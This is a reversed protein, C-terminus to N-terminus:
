KRKKRSGARPPPPKRTPAVSRGNSTGAKGKSSEKENTAAKAAGSTKSAAPKAAPKAKSRQAQGGKARGAQTKAKNGAQRGAQRGAKAPQSRGKGAQTRSRSGGGTSKPKTKAGAQGQKPRAPAEGRRLQPMSEASPLLSRWGRGGGAPAPSPVGADAPAPYMTRTIFYQQGIRFLNSALFYVVVGAPIFFYIFAFMLPMFKMMMQQQANVQDKPARSQMQWQQIYTTAIVLVLLLIFPASHGIGKRFASLVSESLDIGLSMMKGTSHLAEYLKSSHSIYAPDFNGASAIAHPNNTLAAGIDQGTPARHTLGELIEYLVWFVPLQLLMPLCGGVPNVKHERYLALTEENLKQRDDKFKNQLRKMEPQLRQMEMMSRTGKLTLPLLVIMIAITLLVISGAYSPWVEYFFALAKALWGFM